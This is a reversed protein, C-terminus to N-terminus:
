RGSAARAMIAVWAELPPETLGELVPESASSPPLTSSSVLPAASAASASFAAADAAPPVERGVTSGGAGTPVHPGPAGEM